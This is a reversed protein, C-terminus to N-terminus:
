AHSGERPGSANIDAYGRLWKLYEVTAGAGAARAKADIADHPCRRGGVGLLL